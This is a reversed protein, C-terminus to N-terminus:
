EELQALYAASKGLQIRAEEADHTNGAEQAAIYRRLGTRAMTALRPRVGPLGHDKAIRDLWSFSPQLRRQDRFDHYPNTELVRWSRLAWSVAGRHLGWLQSLERRVLQSSPREGVAVIARMLPRLRNQRDLPHPISLNIADHDLRALALKWLAKRPM